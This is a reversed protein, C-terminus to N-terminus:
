QIALLASRPACRPRLIAAVSDWWSSFLLAPCRSLCIASCMAPTAVCAVSDRRSSFPLSPCRSLCSDVCVFSFDWFGPQRSGRVCLLKFFGRCGHVPRVPGFVFFTPVQTSFLKHLYERIVIYVSFFLVFICCSSQPIIM